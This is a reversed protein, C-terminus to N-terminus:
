YFQTAQSVLIEFHQYDTAGDTKSYRGVAIFKTAKNKLSVRKSMRGYINSSGSSNKFLNVASNYEHFKPIYCQPQTALSNQM